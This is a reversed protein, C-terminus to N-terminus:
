DAMEEIEVEIRPRKADKALRSGDVSLILKDDTVVGAKELADSVAALYNLLDGVATQRYVIARMHVPVDLAPRRWQNRLQIEASQEWAILAESGVSFVRKGRQIRRLSNKKTIPRGLIQLTVAM